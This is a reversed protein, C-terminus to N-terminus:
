TGSAQLIERARTVAASGNQAWSCLTSSSTWTDFLARSKHNANDILVHPIGLALALLHGHLRDTILVRGQSLFRLGRRLRIWALENALCTIEALATANQETATRLERHMANLRNGLFDAAQRLAGDQASFEIWDAQAIGIESTIQAAPDAEKDSRMLAMVDHTPAAERVLFGLGCSADPCLTSPVDFLRRAAALSRQDRLLLHLNQHSRGRQQFVKLASEEEFCISQPMQLVFNDPFDQLIQERFRQHNPWLDGLNGGGCIVIPADRALRQMVGRDYTRLSCHYVVRCGRDALIAEEGLWIASDGANWHDPFGVHAVPTGPPLLSDLVQRMGDQLRAILHRDPSTANM